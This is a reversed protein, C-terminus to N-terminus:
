MELRNGQTYACACTRKGGEQQDKILSTFQIISFLCTIRGGMLIESEVELFIVCACWAYCQEAEM